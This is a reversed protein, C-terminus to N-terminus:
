IGNFRHLERQLQTAADAVEECIKKFEEMQEVTESTLGNVTHVNRDMEATVAEQEEMATAMSTVNETVENTHRLTKGITNNLAEIMGLSNETEDRSAMISDTANQAQEQLQEVTEQIEQTSQQTREALARVEDAVVAFGRGQEGARAAEIAANLALLNTQEAVSRIVDLVTGIANSQEKLGTVKNAAEEMSQHLLSMKKMNADITTSAERIYEESERTITMTREADSALTQITATMESIATALMNTQENQRLVQGDLSQSVQSSNEISGALTKQSGVLNRVMLVFNDLFHNISIAVKDLEDNSTVPVRRSLDADGEALYTMQQSLREVRNKIQTSFLWYIIAGVSLAIVVFSLAISFRSENVGALVQDLSTEVELIGRVDGLQWDNKPTNPHSNHCGICAQASMTDAVAVRLVPRGNVEDERAFVAEPDQNLEAWAQKQFADLRRGARNPFPHKSYLKLHMGQDAFLESLDHIMTAPLPITNEAEHHDIGVAMGSAKAKAVVEKTYYGRVIKFNSAVDIANETQQEIMRNQIQKPFLIAAASFVILLVTFIPILFKKTM